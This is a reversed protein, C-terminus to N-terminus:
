RIIAFGITSFGNFTLSRTRYNIHYRFHKFDPDNNEPSFERRECFEDLDRYSKGKPLKLRKGFLVYNPTESLVM